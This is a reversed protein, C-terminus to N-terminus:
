NLENTLLKQFKRLASKKNIAIVKFLGRESDIFEYEKCGKPIVKPKPTVSIKEPTISSKGNNMFSTAIMISMLQSSSPRKM